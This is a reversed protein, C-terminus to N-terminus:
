EKSLEIRSFRRISIKEGLKATAEALLTEITKSSDKIHPQLLLCRESYFKGLKGKVIQELAAEPKGAQKAEERALKEEKAVLAAPVDEPALYEPSTAAIQMALEKALQQFEANRAVFDTECNLEVLAGIRGGHTYAVVLGQDATRSQKSAAKALGKVRLEELAKDMDGGAVELAKKADMLGAGTRKRLEAVESASIM